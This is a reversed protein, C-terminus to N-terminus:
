LVIIANGGPDRGEGLAALASRSSTPFDPVLISAAPRLAYRNAQTDALLLILRDAHLDRQKLQAARLAAQIDALRTIAEVVIRCGPVELLMDAARLDGSIPIPAELRIRWSAHLRTRLRDVLAVQPADRIPAVLPLLNIRVALGVVAAWRALRTISPDPLAGKEARSVWSPSVGLARAVSSQSLSAFLRARRLEEVLDGLRRRTDRVAQDTRRASPTM